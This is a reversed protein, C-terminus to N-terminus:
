DNNGRADKLVSKDIISNGVVKLHTRGTDLGLLKDGSKCIYGVGRSSWEVTYKNGLGDALIDKEYIEYGKWYKDKNESTYSKNFSDLVRYLYETTPNRDKNKVEEWPTGDYAKTFDLVVVEECYWMETKRGTHAHKDVIRTVENLDEYIFVASDKKFFLKVKYPPCSLLEMQQIM